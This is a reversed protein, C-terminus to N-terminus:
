ESILEDKSPCTKNNTEQKQMINEYQNSKYVDDKLSHPKAFHTKIM